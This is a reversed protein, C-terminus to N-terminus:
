RIDMRMFKGYAAAFFVSPFVVLAALSGWIRSAAGEPTDLPDVITHVVANYNMMPSFLNVTDTVFQKKNQYTKMEADYRDCEEEYAKLVAVDGSIHTRGDADTWAPMEPRQPPDGAVMGGLVMGFMPLVYALAFFLALGYVMAHGSEKTVVSLALALAFFALLYMFSALGLFGIGAVEDATPVISCVLLVALTIAFAIVLAVGLAAAGGLAKGNIIEDRFIPHALLTKLSRTEKEKSILDFGTAIALMGGFAVLSSVLQMFILLISPRDPMMGPGTSDGAAQLQQNYSELNQNYQDIGQHMGLLAFMLLLALIVLFKRSTLHDTFEKGAVTFIREATM